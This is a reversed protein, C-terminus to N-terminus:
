GRQRTPQGPSPLRGQRRSNTRQLPESGGADEARVDPLVGPLLGELALVAPFRKRGVSRVVAVDAARVLLVLAASAADTPFDEWILFREVRVHLKMFAVLGGLTRVISLRLSPNRRRKEPKPTHRIFLRSNCQSSVCLFPVPWYVSNILKM